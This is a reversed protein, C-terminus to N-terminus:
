ALITGNLSITASRVEFFPDEQGNKENPREKVDSSMEVKSISKQDVEPSSIVFYENM